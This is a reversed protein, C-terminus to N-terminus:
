WSYPDAPDDEGPKDAPNDFVAGLLLALLLVFVAIVLSVTAEEDFRRKPAECGIVLVLSTDDSRAVGHRSGRGPIILRRQLLPPSRRQWPALLPLQPFPLPSCTFGRHQCFWAPLNLRGWKLSVPAGGRHLLPALAASLAVVEPTCM